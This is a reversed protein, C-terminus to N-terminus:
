SLNCNRDGAVSGMKRVLMTYCDFFAWLTGIIWGDGLM